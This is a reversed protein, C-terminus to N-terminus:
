SDDAGARRWMREFEQADIEDAEALDLVDVPQDCIMFSPESTRHLDGWRWRDGYREVQRVVTAGDVELYALGEGLDSEAWHRYYKM